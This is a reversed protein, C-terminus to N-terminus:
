EKCLEAYRLASQAQFEAVGGTHKVVTEWRPARRPPLGKVSSGRFRPVQGDNALMFIAGWQACDNPGYRRFDPYGRLELLSSLTYGSRRIINKSPGEKAQAREQIAQNLEQGPLKSVYVEEVY